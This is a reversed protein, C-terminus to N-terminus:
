TGGGSGINELPETIKRKASLDMKGSNQRFNGRRNKLIVLPPSEKDSRKVVREACSVLRLLESASYHTTVRSSRHGLLDQRDEFGVGAARLRRGFTHKLDHVRVQALGARRRAGYWASNGMRTVPNGEYTFVHTPHRGRRKDVISVALSNLVVLRDDGGGNTDKVESAPLIFVSLGLEHVAVEDEWRLGCVDADRLGTNVKFIAMEALHAPLEAFFRDQEDWSLPYPKRKNNNPLLKIKPAQALWTLGDDDVWETAALNLIRRVVQLGHNITGVAVGDHRRSILWRQLAGMHLTRLPRDAIFPMLNELRQVDNQLSKKHTNELVFKAAAEEFTRDPRVGFLRAQRLDELVKFLVAEAEELRSTGTSQQIRRGSVMKDIHWIRNRYRLGPTKRRGM